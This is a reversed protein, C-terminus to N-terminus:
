SLHPQLTFLLPCLSTVSMPQPPEIIKASATSGALALGCGGTMTLVSGLRRAAGTRTVILRRIGLFAFARATEEAEGADMGAPATLIPEIGHLTALAALAKMEDFDYPNAGASDILIREQTGAAKLLTKLEDRSSATLVPIELVRMLAALQEVGGARANDTSIVKVPLRHMALYAAIKAITVTKGAGPAGVLMWRWGPPEPALPQFTLVAELLRRLAEQVPLSPSLHERWQALLHEPTHHLRLLTELSNVPPANMVDDRRFAPNLNSHQHHSTANNNVSSGPSLRSSSSSASTEMPFPSPFPDNERAATVTVRKTEPDRGSSLIIAEEGLAERVMQMAHQMNAATFTRLRM